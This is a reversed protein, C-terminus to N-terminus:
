SNSFSVLPQSLGGGVTCHVIRAALADSLSFIVEDVGGEMWQNKFILFAM